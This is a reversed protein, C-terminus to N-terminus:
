LMSETVADTLNLLYACRRNWIDAMLEDQWNAELHDAKASCVEAVLEIFESFNQCRDMVHEIQDLDRNHDDFRTQLTTM